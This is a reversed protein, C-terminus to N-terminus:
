FREGVMDESIAWLQKAREPDLAYRRVGGIVANILDDNIESVHCDECYRGGVEQAQATVGAWVSTAAGQQVTKFEFQPMGQSALEANMQAIVEDFEGPRMHAQFGTRIGGPHVAVARVGRDRHRRDFEVAFLINSTKSRGYAVMPDYPPREFNPDDLDIDSVYHSSSALCVVRGGSPILSAIRNILLFHGLHNTGFQAEFGDKTKERAATMMGANAIVLDISRGQKVLADVCARISALSGLDLEILEYRGGSEHAAAQIPAMASRAKGLDRAAGIVEAGHAVLARATEVGIGASVGTVLMRKGTLDIGSLVDDTTSKAGFNEAM